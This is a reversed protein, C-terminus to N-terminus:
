VIIAKYFIRLFFLSFLFSIRAKSGSANYFILESSALPDKIQIRPSNPSSRGSEV